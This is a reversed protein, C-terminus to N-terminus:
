ILRPRLDVQLLVDGGADRATEAAASLSPKPAPAIACVPCFPTDPTSTDRLHECLM